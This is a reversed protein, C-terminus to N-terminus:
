KDKAFIYKAFKIVEYIYKFVWQILDGMSYSEFMIISQMDIMGCLLYM